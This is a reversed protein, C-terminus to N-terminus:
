SCQSHPIASLHQTSSLTHVDGSYKSSNQLLEKKRKSSCIRIVCLFAVGFASIGLCRNEFIYLIFKIVYTDLQYSLIGILIRVSFKLLLHSTETYEKGM